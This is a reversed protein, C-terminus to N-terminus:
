QGYLKLVDEIVPHREVDGRGFRCLGIRDSENNEFRAAFDKLGNAQLSRDHQAVDGNLLLRSGEGIRTLVMLTQDPLSNQMEDAIVISNKFTRGRMLGLAALELTEDELMKKVVAIPYVEKFIDLVPVCWPALKAMLDGPLAGINEGNAVLPRTIVIKQIKKEQLQKIAFLTAMYSKGCGAPGMACVIAKNEDELLDLYTEQAMNRPLLQIKKRAATEESVPTLYHVNRDARRDERPNPRNARKANRMQRAM